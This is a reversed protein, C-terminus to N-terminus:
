KRTELRRVAEELKEIRILIRTEADAPLTEGSEFQEMALAIFRNLSIGRSDAMTQCRKKLDLPIRISFITMEQESM